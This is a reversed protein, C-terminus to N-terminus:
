PRITASLPEEQYMVPAGSGRQFLSSRFWSFVTGPDAKWATSVPGIRWWPQLERAGAAIGRRNAPVVGMMAATNPSNFMGSGVGVIFLYIGIPLYSTDRQLSTMLALGAGTVLMGLAAM